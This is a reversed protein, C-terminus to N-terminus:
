SCCGAGGMLLMLVPRFDGAIAESLPIVSAGQVRNSDPYQQELRKAIARMDALASNVSAGDKLRAIGDLNHCSGRTEGFSFTRM